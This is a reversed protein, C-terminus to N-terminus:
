FNELRAKVAQWNPILQGLLTFFARDHQPHQLHCVEHAIVYDICTSPAKVLEPNFSIQGNRHASGWRKPMRLLRVAPRPLKRAACWKEWKALRATFQELAKSRYWANLLAEVEEPQNSEASIHFYGGALKVGGGGGSRVKLRYQRGLYRHTAGSAYILPVRNRNMDAFARRQRVIWRLRQRVKEAIKSETADHPATLELTGDPLVSIALTARGTRRLRAPGAPTAIVVAESM